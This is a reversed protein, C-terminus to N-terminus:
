IEWTSPVKSSIAIMIADSEEVSNLELPRAEDAEGEQYAEVRASKWM